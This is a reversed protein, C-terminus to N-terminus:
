EFIREKPYGMFDAMRLISPHDTPARNYKISWNKFTNRMIGFNEPDVSYKRLSDLFNDSLYARGIRSKVKFPRHSM